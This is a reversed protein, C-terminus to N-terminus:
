CFPNMNMIGICIGNDPSTGVICELLCNSGYALLNGSCKTCTTSDLCDICSSDLTSCGLCNM